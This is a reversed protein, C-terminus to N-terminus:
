PPWIYGITTEPDPKSIEVQLKGDYTKVENITVASDECTATLTELDITLQIIM